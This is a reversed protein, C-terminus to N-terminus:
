ICFSSKNVQTHVCYDFASCFFFYFCLLRLCVFLFVFLGSSLATVVVELGAPASKASYSRSLCLYASGVPNWVVAPLHVKARYHSKQKVINVGPKELFRGTPRSKDVKRKGGLRRTQVVVCVTPRTQCGDQWLRPSPLRGDQTGSGGPSCTYM